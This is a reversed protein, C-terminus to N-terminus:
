APRLNNTPIHARFLERLLQIEVPSSLCRKPIVQVDSNSPYLLFYNSTEQAKRFVTWDSDVKGASGETSVGSDTFRFQVGAANAHNALFRGTSFLPAVFLVLIPFAFILAFLPLYMGRITQQWETFSHALITAVVVGTLILVGVFGSLVFIKRLQQTTARVATWYFETPTLKVLVSVASDGAM